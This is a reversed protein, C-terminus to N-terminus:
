NLGEETTNVAPVEYFGQCGRKQDTYSGRSKTPIVELSFLHVLHLLWALHLWAGQTEERVQRQRSDLM